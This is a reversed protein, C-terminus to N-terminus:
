VYREPQHAEISWYTRGDDADRGILRSGSNGRALEFQTVESDVHWFLEGPVDKLSMGFGEETVYEAIDFFKGDKVPHIMNKQVVDLYAWRDDYIYDVGDFAILQEGPVVILIDMLADNFEGDDGVALFVHNETHQNLFNNAAVADVFADEGYDTYRLSPCNGDDEAWIMFKSLGSVKRLAADARKLTNWTTLPHLSVPHRLPQPIFPPM